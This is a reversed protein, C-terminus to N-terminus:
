TAKASKTEGERLFAELKAMLGEQRDVFGGGFGPVAMAEGWARRWKVLLKFPRDDLEVLRVWVFSEVPPPDCTGVFLGGYSVDVTYARRAAQEQGGALWYLVNFHRALRRYKRLARPQFRRCEEVFALLNEQGSRSADNYLARFGAERNWNTRVSPFISELLHLREKEQDAAKVSLQVDVVIGSVPNEPLAAFLASLSPFPLLEVNLERFFEEHAALVEGRKAVIALRM